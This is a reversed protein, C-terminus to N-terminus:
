LNDRKVNSVRGTAYNYDIKNLTYLIDLADLFGQIGNCKTRCVRYLDLVSIDEEIAIMVVSCDYLVTEKFQFLKSPFRM